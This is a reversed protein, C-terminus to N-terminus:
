IRAALNNIKSKIDGCPLCCYGPYGKSKCKCTGPPCDTCSVEFTCPSAGRDSFIIQNNHLVNIEDTPLPDGCSDIPVSGGSPNYSEFGLFTPKGSYAAYVLFHGYVGAGTTPNDLRFLTVDDAGTAYCYFRWEHWGDSRWFLEVSAWGIAGRYGVGQDKTRRIQGQSNAWIVGYWHNCQAGTFNRREDQTITVDIPSVPSEYVRNSGNGFKYTVKPKDGVKCYTM